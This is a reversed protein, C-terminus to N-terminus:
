TTLKVIHILLYLKEDDTVGNNFMNILMNSIEVVCQYQKKYKERMMELLDENRSDSDSKDQIMRELFFCLHRIFRSYIIDDEDININFNKAVHNYIKDVMATMDYTQKMEVNLEANIIHLTIFSAENDSVKVDFNNRIIEIAKLAISYEERYMRKVDWLLTNDFEIGMSIREILNSIHDTLTIYINDSLETDLDEKIMEIITQSTEIVDNPINILLDQYKRNTDKNQIVFIKEIKESDLEMGVKKQFAIGKGKVFIEEEANDRSIVANNNLIREIIM